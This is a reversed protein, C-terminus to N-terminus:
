FFTKGQIKCYVYLNVTRLKRLLQGKEVVLTSIGSRLEQFLDEVTKAEGKGWQDIPLNLSKLYSKLEDVSRFSNLQEKAM